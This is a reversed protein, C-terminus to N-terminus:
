KGSKRQYVSARLPKWGTKMNQLSESHGIFAMGGPKTAQYLKNMIQECTEPTFYILVNRCFVFDFLGNAPLRPDILNHQGFKVRRRIAPKVRMWDEIGKTGFDFATKQYEEPIERLKERSYVASAAVSLVETDIDSAFIEFDAVGLHHLLIALTYPEEGTSSAACWIRVPSNRQALVQALFEFHGCERFFETKNTTLLNVFEQLEPDGNSLAALRHQYEAFSKLGLSLVRQRLRGQLLQMKAPALHIGAVQRLLGSFYSFEKASLEMEPGVSFSAIIAASM